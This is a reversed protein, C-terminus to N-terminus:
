RDQPEGAQDARDFSALQEALPASSWDIPTPSYLAKDVRRIDAAIAEPLRLSLQSLNSPPHEAWRLRAWALIAMRAGEADESRCALDLEALLEARRHENTASAGEAPTSPGAMAQSPAQKPARSTGARRRWLLWALILVLVLVFLAGLWSWASHLWPQGDAPSAPSPVAQSTRGDAGGDRRWDPTPRRSASELEAVELQWPPAQAREWRAADVNWWEVTAAPLQYLGPEAASITIRETRYGTVGGPSRENWLRPADERVQLQFPVPPQIPPLDEARLGVAKLTLMREIVQGPALRVSSAGAETLSVSTAPLWVSDKTSDQTSGPASGPPLAPAPGVEVSLAASRLAQPGDTGPHWASFVLPPIQLEGAARPFLAYRREFIWREPADDGTRGIRRDEGLILVDVQDLDPEILRGPPLPGDGVVLVRLVLQQGVLVQDRDVSAEVEITEAWPPTPSPGQSPQENSASPKVVELELSRTTGGDVSLAPISLQGSRQPLLTLRLSQREERRGNVELLDGVTARDLVRFDTALPSLDARVPESGSRELSLIVSEGLAVRQRSLRAQVPQETTAGTSPQPDSQHGAETEAAGPQAFLIGAVVLLRCM